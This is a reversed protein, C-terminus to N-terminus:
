GLGGRMCAVDCVYGERVEMGLFLFSELLFLVFLASIVTFLSM